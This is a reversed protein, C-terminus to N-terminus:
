HVKLGNEIANKIKAWKKKIWRIHWVVYNKVNEPFNREFEIFDQEHFFGYVCFITILTECIIVIKLWTEM